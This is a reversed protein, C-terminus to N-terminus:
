PAMPFNRRNLLMGKLTRIDGKTEAVRKAWDISSQSGGSRGSPYNTYFPYSAPSYFTEQTIINSLEDVCQRLDKIAARGDAYAGEVGDELGANVRSSYLQIEKSLSELLTNTPEMHKQVSKTLNPSAKTAEKGDATLTNSTTSYLSAFTAVNELYSSVLEKQQQQYKTSRERFSRLAALYHHKYVWMVTATSGCTLVSIALVIKAVNASTRTPGQQQAQIVLPQGQPYPVQPYPVREKAPDPLTTGMIDSTNGLPTKLQKRVSEIEESTLGKRKLFEDQRDIPSGQVAQSSLFSLAQQRLNDRSPIPPTPLSGTISPAVPSPKAASVDPAKLPTNQQRADRQRQLLERRIKDRADPTLSFDVKPTPASKTEENSGTAPNHEAGEEKSQEKPGETTM